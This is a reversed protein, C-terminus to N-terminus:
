KWIGALLMISIFMTYLYFLYIFLYDLM